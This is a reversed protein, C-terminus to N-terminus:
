SVADGILEASLASELGPRSKGFQKVRDGLDARVDTDGDNKVAIEVWYELITKRLELFIREGSSDVSNQEQIQGRFFGEVGIM